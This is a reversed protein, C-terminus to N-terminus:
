DQLAHSRYRCGAVNLGSDRSDGRRHGDRGSWQLLPERSTRRESQLACNKRCRRARGRASCWAKWCPIAPWATPAMCEPPPRRARPTSAPCHPADRSIPAGRRGDRLPCRSSHSDPGHHYRHQVEPLHRLHAPLASQVHEADLHDPRSLRDSGQSRSLELEHTIARAVVDRPALERWPTTSLCSARLEDNRLYAGEGRLAESLLFRPADKLYLATPHFQIFEM